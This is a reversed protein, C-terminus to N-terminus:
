EEGKVEPIFPKPEGVYDEAETSDKPIPLMGSTGTTLKPHIKSLLSDSTMKQIQRAGFLGALTYLTNQSMAVWFPPNLPFQVGLAFAAGGCIAGIVTPLYASLLDKFM